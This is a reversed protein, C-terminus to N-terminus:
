TVAPLENASRAVFRMRFLVVRPWLMCIYMYIHVYIIRRNVQAEIPEDDGGGSDSATRQDAAMLPQEALEQSYELLESAEGDAATVAATTEMAEGSDPPLLQEGSAPSQGRAMMATLITMLTFCVFSGRRTSRLASARIARMEHVHRPANTNENQNTAIHTKNTKNVPSWLSQQQNERANM